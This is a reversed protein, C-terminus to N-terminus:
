FGLVSANMILTAFRNIWLRECPQSILQKKWEKSYIKQCFILCYNLIQM